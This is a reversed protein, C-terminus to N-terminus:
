LQRIVVTQNGGGDDLLPGNTLHAVEIPGDTICKIHDVHTMQGQDKQTEGNPNDGRM